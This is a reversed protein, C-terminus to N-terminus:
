STQQKEYQHKREKVPKEAKSRWGANLSPTFAAEAPLTGGMSPIFEFGHRKFCRCLVLPSM